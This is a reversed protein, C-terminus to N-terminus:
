NSKTVFHDFKTVPSIEKRMKICYELHRTWIWLMDGFYVAQLM